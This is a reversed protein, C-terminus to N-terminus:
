MNELIQLPDMLFTGNRKNEWVHIEQSRRKPGKGGVPNGQEIKVPFSTGLWPLKIHRASICPLGAWKKLSLLPYSFPLKPSPAPLPLPVSPPPFTILSFFFYQNIVVIIFSILFSYFIHERLVAKLFTCAQLNSLVSRDWSVTKWIWLGGTLLYYQSWVLWILNSPNPYIAWILSGFSLCISQLLYVFYSVCGWVTVGSVISRELEAKM